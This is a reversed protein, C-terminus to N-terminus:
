GKGAMSELLEWVAEEWPMETLLQKVGEKMLQSLGDIVPRIQEFRDKSNSGGMLCALGLSAADVFEEPTMSQLEEFISM